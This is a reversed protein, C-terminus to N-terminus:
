VYRLFLSHVVRMYVPNHDDVNKMHLLVWVEFFTDGYRSFDLDAADIDKAILEQMALQLV